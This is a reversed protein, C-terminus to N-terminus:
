VDNSIPKFSKCLISVCSHASSRGGQIYIEAFPKVTTHCVCWAEKYVLHRFDSFVMEARLHDTINGKLVVKRSEDPYLKIVCWFCIWQQKLDQIHRIVTKQQKTFPFAAAYPSTAAHVKTSSLTETTAQALHQQATEASEEKHLKRLKRRAENQKNQKQLQIARKQMYVIAPPETQSSKSRKNSNAQITNKNPELTARGRKHLEKSMM